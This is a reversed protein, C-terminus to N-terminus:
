SAADSNKYLSLGVSTAIVALVILYGLVSLNNITMDKYANNFIYDTGYLKAAVAAPTMFPCLYISNKLQFPFTMMFYGLTIVSTIVFRKTLASVMIVVSSLLFYAVAYWLTVTLFKFLLTGSIVTRFLIFGFLLESLGSVALLSSIVLFLSILKSLYIHIRSVGSTLMYSVTKYHYEMSFLFAPVLIVTILIGLVLIEKGTTLFAEWSQEGSDKSFLFQLFKILSPLIGSIMVLLM